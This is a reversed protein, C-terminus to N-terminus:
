SAAAQGSQGVAAARVASEPELLRTTVLGAVVFQRYVPTFGRYLFRQALRATNSDLFSALFPLLMMIHATGCPRAVCKRGM